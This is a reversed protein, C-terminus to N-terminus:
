ARFEGANARRFARDLIGYVRISIMDDPHREDDRKLESAFALKMEMPTPQQPRAADQAMPQVAMNSGRETETTLGAPTNAAGEGTSSNDCKERHEELM